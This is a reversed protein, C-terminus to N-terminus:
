YNEKIVFPYREKLQISDRCSSEVSEQIIRKLQETDEYLDERFTWLRICNCVYILDYPLSFDMLSDPWKM